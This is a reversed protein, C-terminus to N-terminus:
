ALASFAAPPLTSKTSRGSAPMVPLECMIIISLFLSWIAPSISLHSTALPSDSQVRTAMEVHRFGSMHM